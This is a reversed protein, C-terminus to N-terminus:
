QMKYKDTTDKKSDMEEIDDDQITVLSEEEDKKDTDSLMLVMWAWDGGFKINYKM